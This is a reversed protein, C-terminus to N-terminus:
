LDVAKGSEASRFAAEIIRIVLKSEEPTVAVKAKGQLAQAVNTYFGEKVAPILELEEPGAKTRLL